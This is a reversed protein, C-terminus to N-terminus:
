VHSQIWNIIDKELWRSMKGIKIQPPFKNLAILKYLESRSIAVKNIVQQLKM